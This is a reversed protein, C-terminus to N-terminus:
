INPNTAGIVDAEKQSLHRRYLIVADVVDVVFVFHLAGHLLFHGLTVQGVSRQRSLAGIGYASSTSMFAFDVLFILPIAPMFGLGFLFALIYFPIHALKIAMSWFYLFLANGKHTCSLIINSICVVPTALIYLMFYISGAEATSFANGFLPLILYPWVMLFFPIIRHM